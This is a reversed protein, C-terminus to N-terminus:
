NSDSFSDGVYNKLDQAMNKTFVNWILPTNRVAMESGTSYNGNAFEKLMKVNNYAYDAPAGFISVVGGVADPDSKFKPEFPTPNAFDFSLGTDLSRYFMDSYLAGLGSFDFARLMKDEADMEDWAWSPTRFKVISYGFFMAVALHAYNNRVMGQAYNTTIKNLAGVTYTYFTFPLALLPSEIEAYGRVRTSEKMGVKEAVSMPVYTKGSMILPKDAPTGMIIRNMVGSRLASRFATLSAEDTWADTNPLYLDNKSTQVPAKAIKKALEPTINYRALFQQEWKSAKNDALRKSAEIITHGRFLTDMHKAALTIPALLNAMYFGHNIKDTMGNQFPDRSLNELYRMHSAGAIIEMGDGAKRLERAAMKLSVDDALATLGKGIIRMEHDMFVNAFDGVAAVGAGGLYTWQTATQLWQASRSTITDPKTIVRGVIRDYSGIFEKNIMDIKKQSMGAAAMEKTNTSILDDLTAPKGNDTRFQRAFAYKPAIKANYNILVQKLDTVIFDQVKLNPIDLTRHIMHKSKGAGYYAGELVDDELEDMISEVTKKARGRSAAESPDLSVETFRNSSEDWKWLTPNEMYHKTIIDEFAERNASIARRDFYRPFFPETLGKQPASGDLYANVNNVRERMVSIHGDLNKIAASIRPTVKIQDLVKVADAASRTRSSVEFANSLDDYVKRLESIEETIDTLLKEGKPTLGRAEFTASLESQKTLKKGLSGEVTTIRNSLFANNNDLISQTVDEMGSLRAEIGAKKSVLVETNGLIGVENLMQDWEHFYKRVKELARSELDSVDTANRLYLGVIHQGFDDFTLSEQGRLKRIKELTDQVPMDLVTAGGRPNVESWIEHIENYVGGWKGSLEGAEQQVSRGISKNVQNLKYGVGSDTVLRLFKYKIEKPADSQIVAKVPTPLAKYFISNTFWEGMFDLDTEGLEIADTVTVTGAESKAGVQGAKMPATPTSDISATFEKAQTVAAAYQKSAVKRKKTQYSDISRGIGYGLTTAIGIAMATDLSEKLIIDLVDEEYHGANFGEIINRSGEFFVAETGAAIAGKKALPMANYKKLISKFQADFAKHSFGVKGATRLAKMYILPSFLEPVLLPDAFMQQVFGSEEIVRQLEGRKVLELYATEAQKQNLGNKLIFQGDSSQISIGKNDLFSNVNFSTDLDSNTDFISTFAPGVLQQTQAVFTDGFSPEKRKLPIENEKTPAVLRNLGVDAM